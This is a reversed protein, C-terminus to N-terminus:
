VPARVMRAGQGQGSSLAFILRPGSKSALSSGYILGLNFGASGTPTLSSRLGRIFKM